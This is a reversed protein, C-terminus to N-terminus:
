TLERSGFLWVMMRQMCLTRRSLAGQYRGGLVCTLSLQRWDAKKTWSIHCRTIKATIKCGIPIRRHDRPQFPRIRGGLACTLGLKPWSVQNSCPSGVHYCRLHLHCWFSKAVTPIAFQDKIPALWLKSAQKSAQGVWSCVTTKLSNDSSNQDQFKYSGLDFNKSFFISWRKDALDTQTSICTKPRGEWAPFYLMVALWALLPLCPLLVLSNWQCALKAVSNNQNAINWFAWNWMDVITNAEFELESLKKATYTVNKMLVKKHCWHWRLGVYM